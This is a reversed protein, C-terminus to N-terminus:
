AAALAPAKPGDRITLTIVGALVALALAIIWVWVYRAFLDFLVGALIMGTAAGLSHGMFLVGLALGMIGVGLQGAVIGAIVPFVSFNLLGFMAAFLFLASPNGAIGMLVIFSLARLMFIAALLTPRRM